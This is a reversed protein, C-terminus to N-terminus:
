RYLFAAAGAAGLLGCIDAPATPALPKRVLGPIGLVLLTGSLWM